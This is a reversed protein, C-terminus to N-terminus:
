CEMEELLKLSLEAMRRRSFIAGVGTGECLRRLEVREENTLGGGVTAAIRQFEAVDGWEERSVGESELRALEGKSTVEVIERLDAFQECLEALTNFMVERHVNQVGVLECNDTAARRLYRCKGRLEAPSLM